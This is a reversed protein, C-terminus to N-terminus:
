PLHIETFAL